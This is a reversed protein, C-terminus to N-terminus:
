VKGSARLPAVRWGLAEVACWGATRDNLAVLRRFVPDPMGHRPDFGERIGDYRTAAFGVVVEGDPRTVM